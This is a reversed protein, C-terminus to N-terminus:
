FNEGNENKMKFVDTARRMALPTSITDFTPSNLVWGNEMGGFDGVLKNLERRYM